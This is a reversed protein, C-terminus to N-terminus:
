LDKWRPGMLGMDRHKVAVQPLLLTTISRHGSVKVLERGHEANQSKVPNNPDVNRHEVIVV